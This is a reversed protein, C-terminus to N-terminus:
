RKGVKGGLIGPELLKEVKPAKLFINLRFDSRELTWTKQRRCEPSSQSCRYQCLSRWPIRRMFRKSSPQSFRNMTFSPQLCPITMLHTRPLTRATLIQNTSTDPPFRFEMNLDDTHKVGESSSQTSSMAVEFTTAAHFQVAPNSNIPM